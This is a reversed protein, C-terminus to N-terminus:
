EAAIVDESEADDNDATPTAGDDRREGGAAEIGDGLGEGGHATTEGSAGEGQEAAMTRRTRLPEPLWGSGALLAEAKEAMDPKKLHAIQEATREDHGERVALLIRAKTVRGLYNGVTPVWGQAVMDLAIDEAIRDAHAMARPRRNYTEFVANLALSVCHAFLARRDDEGFM